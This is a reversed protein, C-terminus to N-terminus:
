FKHLNLNLIAASSVRQMRLLNSVRDQNQQNFTFSIFSHVSISCCWRHELVLIFFNLLIELLFVMNPFLDVMLDILQNKITNKYAVFFSKIIITQVLLQFKHDQTSRFFCFVKKIENSFTKWSSSLFFVRM